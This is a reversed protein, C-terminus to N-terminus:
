EGSSGFVSVVVACSLQLFLEELGDRSALTNTLRDMRGDTGYPQTRTASINHNIRCSLLCLLTTMDIVLIIKNQSM